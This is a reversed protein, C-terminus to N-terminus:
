KAAMKKFIKKVEELGKIRSPVLPLKGKAFMKMGLPVDQFLNRSKVKHLAIMLPEFVRGNQRVGALFVEHFASVGPESSKIGKKGAIERCADMVKAVSLGKPCRTACTECGACLWITASELVEKECGLQVMRMVKNPSLEMAFAAPCGATCEGCQYCQLANEGCIEQVETYFSPNTESGFVVIDSKVAENAEKSLQSM